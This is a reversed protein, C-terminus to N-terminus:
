VMEGPDRKEHVGLVWATVCEFCPDLAVLVEDTDVVARALALIWCGRSPRSDRYMCVGSLAAAAAFRRGRPLCLGYADHVCWVNCLFAVGVYMIGCGREVSSNGARRVVEEQLEGRPVARVGARRDGRQSRRSAMQAQVGVCRRRCVHLRQTLCM